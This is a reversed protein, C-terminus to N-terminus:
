WGDGAPPTPPTPDAPSASSPPAGWPDAPPTVPASPAPGSAGSWPDPSGSTQSPSGWPDPTGGSGTQSGWGDDSTSTTSGGPTGGWEDAVGAGAAGGAGAGAAVGAPLDARLKAVVEALHAQIDDLVRALTSASSDTFATVEVAGHHPDVQDLAVSWHGQVSLPLKAGQKVRAAISDGGAMRGAYDVVAYGPETLGLGTKARVTVGAISVERRDTGDLVIRSLQETPISAGSDTFASTGTVQGRLTGVALDAGAIKATLFKVVYLLGIPILIGLLTVGILVLWLTTKSVNEMEMNLTVPMSVPAASKDAPLTRVTVKGNVLGNGLQEPTMTLTIPGTACSEASNASAAFGLSVGAPTALFTPEGEVWACGEGTLPLTAAVPDLSDSKPFTVANPVTPYNPPAGLTLPFDKVISELKTGPHKAVPQTTVDLTVKFTVPGAAAKTLDVTQPATMEAGRLPGGSALVTGGSQVAWTLVSSDSLKATDVPSGDAHAVGLTVTSSQGAVIKSTGAEAWVPEIDGYIRLNTRSTGTADDANFVLGWLGVLGDPANRTLDLSITQVAGQYGPVVSKWAVSAGAVDRTQLADNPVLEVQAGSPTLMTIRQNKADSDALVHVSGISADLVFSHTCDANVTNGQCVKGESVTGGTLAQDFAFVVDQLNKAEFFEGPSPSTVEGCGNSGTAMGKLFTFDVASSKTSLGIAITSIGQLRAQDAVGGPRCLDKKGAAMVAAVDAVTALKNDAAYPKPDGLAQADADKSRPEVSYEGDSFWVAMPCANAVNKTHEALEKRAGSMANWYDTDLGTNQNRMGELAAGLSASSGKAPVWDAVPEYKTDFAGIAVNILRGSRKTVAADLQEVFYKAATIRVGQPDTEKLSGSRDMVVLVEGTGGGNVCAGFREVASDSKAAAVAPPATSPHAVAPSASAEASAPISSFSLLGLTAAAAFRTLLSRHGWMTREPLGSMSM